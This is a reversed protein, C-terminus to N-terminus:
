FLCRVVEFAEAAQMGVSAGRWRALAEIARDSRPHPFPPQEAAYTAMARLKTELTSEIDVFLTPRFGQPLPTWETSSAVEFTALARVSSAPVPRCAVLAAQYAKRHDVNLDCGSHTLVLTPEHREILKEAGKALTLLTVADSENDPVTVGGWDPYASVGLMTAVEVAQEWRERANGAFRAGVGDTLFAVFVDRGEQSLRALTGGAGLVEDDPHAALVLVPGDGGLGVIEQKEM